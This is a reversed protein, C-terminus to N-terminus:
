VYIIARKTDTPGVVYAKDFTGYTKFTGKLVYDKSAPAPEACCAPTINSMSTSGARSLLSTTPTKNHNLQHLLQRVRLLM